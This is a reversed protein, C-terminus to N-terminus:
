YRQIQNDSYEMEFELKYQAYFKISQFLYCM